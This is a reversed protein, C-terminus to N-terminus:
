WIKDLAAWLKSVNRYGGHHNLSIRRMTEPMQISLEWHTTSNSLNLLQPKAFLLM